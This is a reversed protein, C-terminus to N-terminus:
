PLPNRPVPNTFEQDSLGSMLNGFTLWGRAGSWVPDMFWAELALPVYGQDWVSESTTWGGGAAMSQEVYFHVLRDFLAVGTDSGNLVAKTMRGATKAYSYSGVHESYFPSYNQNIDERSAWLYIGMDIIAYKIMSALRPDSPYDEIQTAMWFLNTAIELLVIAKEDDVDEVESGWFTYLDAPTPATLAM